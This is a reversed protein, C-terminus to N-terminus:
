METGGCATGSYWGTGHRRYEFPGRLDHADTFSKILVILMSRTSHVWLVYATWSTVPAGM